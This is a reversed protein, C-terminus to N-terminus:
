EEPEVPNMDADVVQAVKHYPEGCKWCGVNERLAIECDRCITTNPM